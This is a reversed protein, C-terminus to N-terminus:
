EAAMLSQLQPRRARLGAAREFAHGAVLVSAEDFPRGAIQMGLPLGVADFGNCLTLAPMGTLNFPSTLSPTSAGIVVPPNEPKLPTAPEFSGATILVDVDGMVELTRATLESRWRMAQVYDEARLLAGPMIRYRLSRGFDQPRSKLDAEHISYIESLTIPTKADTFNRLTPLQVRRVSCGLSEFIRVSAEMAAIVAPAARVEEDYWDSVLGIKLGKVPSTLARAYDVSPVDASGPDAPDYGAVAQLMLACDEVTWAMPGCHDFSFSNPLVGKRSVLGYTPKLGAIGCAAAPMRISGGTDSGMAGACLGAPIAAGAGSSSGSPSRSLDWPNRAPPWPLDFSPGGLAFEWTAQKGLLVGGAARLKKQATCDELPVNDALLKSHATTRVGATEYIDKLGYPIGHMPGRPGSRMIQAEAEAAEALARDATVLLYSNLTSDLAAIRALYSKTLEVPSLKRAAFARNAEAITIEHLERAV